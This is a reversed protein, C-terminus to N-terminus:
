HYIYSSFLKIKNEKKTYLFRTKAYMLTLPSLTANYLSITVLATIVQTIAMVRLVVRITRIVKAIEPTITVGLITEAARDETAVQHVMMRDRDMHDTKERSDERSIIIETAMTVIMVNLVNQVNRVHNNAANRVFKQQDTLRNMVLTQVLVVM